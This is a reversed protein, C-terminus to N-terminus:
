IKRRKNFFTEIYLPYKGKKNVKEIELIKLRGVGRISLVDSQFLKRDIKTEQIHNRYVKGQTILMNTSNRSLNLSSSLVADLRLSSVTIRKTDGEKCDLSPLNEMIVPEVHVRDVSLLNDVIFSAIHKLCFLYASNVDIVIDGITDRSIGLGMVAGLVQSHTITEKSVICICVIPYCPEAGHEYFCMLKREAYEYGGFSACNLRSGKIFIQAQAQLEMSLFCTYAIGRSSAKTITDQIRALDINSYQM